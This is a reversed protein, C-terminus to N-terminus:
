RNMKEALEKAETETFGTQVNRTGRTKTGEYRVVAWGLVHHGDRQLEAEYWIELEASM